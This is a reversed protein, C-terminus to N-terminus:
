RTMAGGATGQMAGTGTGSMRGGGVGTATGGSMSHAGNSGLGAGSPQTSAEGNAKSGQAPGALTTGQQAFASGGALLLAASLAAATITKTM